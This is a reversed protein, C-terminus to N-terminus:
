SDGRNRAIAIRLEPDRVATVLSSSDLSSRYANLATALESIGEAVFYAEHSEFPGVASVARLIAAETDSSLLGDRALFAASDLTFKLARDSRAADFLMVLLPELTRRIEPHEQTSKRLGFAIQGCLEPEESLIKRLRERLRADDFGPVMGPDSSRLFAFYIMFRAFVEDAEWDRGHELADLVHEVEV